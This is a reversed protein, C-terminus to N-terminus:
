SNWSYLSRSSWSPVPLKWMCGAWWGKKMSSARASIFCIAGARLSTVSALKSGSWWHWEESEMSNSAVELGAEVEELSTLFIILAGLQENPSELHDCFHDWKARKGKNVFIKLLIPIFFEEWYVWFNIKYIFITNSNHTVVGLELTLLYVTTLHGPILSLYVSPWKNAHLWLGFQSGCKM